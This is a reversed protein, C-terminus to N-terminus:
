LPGDVLGTSTPGGIHVGRLVEDVIIHYDALVREEHLGEERLHIKYDEM